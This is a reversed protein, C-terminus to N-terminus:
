RQQGARRPGVDPQALGRIERDVALTDDRQHITERHRRFPLDIRLARPEALRGEVDFVSLAAAL